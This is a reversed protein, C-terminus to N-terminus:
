YKGFGRGTFDIFDKEDVNAARKPATTAVSGSAITIKPEKIKAKELQDKLNKIELDKQELRKKIAQIEELSTNIQAISKKNELKMAEIEKDKKLIETKLETIGKLINDWKNGGQRTRIFHSELLSLKDSIEKLKDDRGTKLINDLSKNIAKFDEEARKKTENIEKVIPEFQEIRTVGTKINLAEQELKAVGSNASIFGVITFIIYIAYRIFPLNIGLFYLLYDLGIALAIFSVL